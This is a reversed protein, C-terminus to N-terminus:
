GDLWVLGGWWAGGCGYLCSLSAQYMLGAVSQSNLDGGQILAQGQSPAHADLFGTLEKCVSCYPM